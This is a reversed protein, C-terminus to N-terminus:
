AFREEDLYACRRELRELEHGQRILALRAADLDRGYQERTAREAEYRLRWREAEEVLLELEDRV